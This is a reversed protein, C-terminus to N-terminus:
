RKKPELLGRLTTVLEAHNGDPGLRSVGIDTYYPEPRAPEESAERITMRVDGRNRDWYGFAVAQGTGAVSALDAWERVANESQGPVESLRFYLYGRAPQQFVYGTFGGPSHEMVAFAGWVQVREPSERSPEFIVREVIGYLAAQGSALLEVAVLSLLGIGVLLVRVKM